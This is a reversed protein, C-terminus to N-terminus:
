HATVRVKIFHRRIKLRAFLQNLHLDDCATRTRQEGCSSREFWANCDVNCSGTLVKYVLILDSELRRDELSQLSLEQM